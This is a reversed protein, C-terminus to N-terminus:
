IFISTGTVLGTVVVLPLLVAGILRRIPM